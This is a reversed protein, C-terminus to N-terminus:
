EVKYLEIFICVFYDAITINTILLRNNHVGSNIQIDDVFRMRVAVLM